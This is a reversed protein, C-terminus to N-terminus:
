IGIAGPANHFLEAYAHQAYARHALLVGVIQPVADGFRMEDCHSVGVQIPSFLNSGFQFNIMEIVADFREGLAFVHLGDHYDSRGLEV